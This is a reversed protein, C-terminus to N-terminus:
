TEYSFQGTSDYSKVENGGRYICGSISGPSSPVSFKSLGAPANWTASNSGSTIVVEAPSSLLIVAYLNDDTDQWNSPKALTPASPVANKSHPRSWLYIMDNTPTAYEGTKFAPIYYQLLQLLDALTREAGSGAWVCIISVTTWITAGSRSALTPSCRDLTTHSATTKLSILWSQRTAGLPVWREM